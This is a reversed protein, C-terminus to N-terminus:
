FLIHCTHNDRVFPPSQQTELTSPFPLEFALSRNLILLLLMRVQSSTPVASSEPRRCTSVPDIKVFGRLAWFAHQMKPLMICFSQIRTPELSWVSQSHSNVQFIPFSGNQKM